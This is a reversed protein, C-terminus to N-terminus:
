ALNRRARRGALFGAVTALIAGAFAVPGAGGTVEVRAWPAGPFRRLSLGEFRIEDGIRIREERVKVKGRQVRLHLPASADAPFGADELTVYFRHPLTELAFYERAGPVVKVLAAGELAGSARRVEFAPAELLHTVRLRRRRPAAVERGIPAVLEAGDLLLRVSGGRDDPVETLALAPARGLVGARVALWRPGEEDLGADVTGRFTSTAEVVWGGLSLSVVAWAGAIGRRGGAASAGAGLAAVIAGFGAFLPLTRSTQLDLWEVRGVSALLAAVVLPSGALVALHPLWAGPGGPKWPRVM